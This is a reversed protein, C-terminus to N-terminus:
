IRDNDDDDICVFECACSLCSTPEAGLFNLRRVDDETLAGGEKMPFWLTVFHRGLRSRDLYICNGEM